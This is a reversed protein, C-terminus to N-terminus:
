CELSSGSSCRGKVMEKWDQLAEMQYGIKDELALCEQRKARRIEKDKHLKKMQSLRDLSQKLGDLLISCAESRRVSPNREEQPVNLEKAEVKEFSRSIYITLRRNSMAESVGPNCGGNHAFMGM